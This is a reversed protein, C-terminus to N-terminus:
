LTAIFDGIHIRIARGLQLSPNTRQLQQEDNPQSDEHYIWAEPCSDKRMELFNHLVVCALATRALNTPSVQMAITLIRWRGKLIGFAREVVQRTSSQDHNFLLQDQTPSKYAPCVYQTSANFCAVLCMILADKFM